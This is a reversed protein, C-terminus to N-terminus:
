MNLYFDETIILEDTLEIGKRKLANFRNTIEKAKKAKDINYKTMAESFAPHNAYKERLNKTFPCYTALIKRAIKNLRMAGSSEYKIWMCYDLVFVDRMNNRCRAIQNKLVEKKEPSLDHNKRYFQVYDSYESTLSPVSIDNWSLGQTTKCLEWRFRGMLKLITLNLDSNFFCPLVMRGPNNIRKGSIEQWMIGNVGICPLLIINPFVEKVILEKTIGAEINEYMSERYFLSYDINQIENIAANIRKGNLFSNTLPREDEMCTLMPVFTSPTGNLIRHNYKLFNDLEYKVKVEPNTLLENEAEPSLQLEKKKKRVYDVYEEDFENKSPINIGKYISVLWDKMYYVMSPVGGTKYSLNCLYDLNEPSILTEDLLGFNLFLDVFLEERGTKVYTFFTKEYLKYFETCINRRLLRTNDDTSSKDKLSKYSDLYSMFIRSEERDYSCYELLREFTDTVIKREDELAELSTIADDSTYSATHALSNFFNIRGLDIDLAIGFKTHIAEVFSTTYQKMYDFLKFVSASNNGINAALNAVLGFLCSSDKNLLSKFLVKLYFLLDEFSVLLESIDDVLENFNCANNSFINQVSANISLSSPNYNDAFEPLNFAEPSLFNQMCIDNYQKYSSYVASYFKNICTFFSSYMNHIQKLLLIYSKEMHHNIILSKEAVLSDSLEDCDSCQFPIINCDGSATFTGSYFGSFIDSVGIFYGTGYTKPADKSSDSSFIVTGSVILAVSSIDDGEEYIDTGTPINNISNFDLTVDEGNRLCLDGM